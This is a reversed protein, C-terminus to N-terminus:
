KPEIPIASIKLIGNVTKGTDNDTGLSSNAISFTDDALKGGKKKYADNVGTFVFSEGAAGSYMKKQGCQGGNWGAGGGGAGNNNTGYNDGNLYNNKNTAGAAKAYTAGHENDYAGNSKNVLTGAQGGNANGTKNSSGGGGAAILIRKTYDYTSGAVLETAGGGGYGANNSNTSYSGKGGGNAGGCEKKNYCSAGMGGIAYYVTQPEKLILQGKIIAPMGGHPLSLNANVGGGKGGRAQIDFNGKPLKITGTAGATTLNVNCFATYPVAVSKTINTTYAGVNAAVAAKITVADYYAKKPPTNGNARTKVTFKQATNYNSKTFTFSTASLTLGDTNDLTLNVKVDGTPQAALKISGTSNTGCKLAGTSSLIIGPTENDAVTIKPKAPKNNFNADNSTANFQLYATQMGDAQSDDVATYYFTIFSDDVTKWNAAKITVKGDSFKGSILNDASAKLSTLKLETTDTSKFTITVDKTPKANLRVKCNYKTTVDSESLAYNSCTATITASNIDTIEITKQATKGTFNSDNSSALLKLAPKKSGDILQDKVGNLTITQNKNWTGETFTLTGPSVTMEKTNNSSVAVLVTAAPMASLRAQCKGNGGEKISAPCNELIISAKDIEKVLTTVKASMDKYEPATDDTKITIESIKDGAIKKDHVGTITFNQQKNYNDATFTLTAPSVTAADTKSSVASVTVTKSPKTNLNVKIVSTAGENLTVSTASVALGAQDNDANILDVPAVELDNFHADESTVKFTIQYAVNGDQMADDMGTVVLEQPQDWNAADFRLEGKSVTGEATNTSMVIISVDNDPQVSLSVGITVKGGAETTMLSDPLALVVAAKDDDRNTLGVEYSLGNFDVDESESSLQVKYPQDGDLMSDKLGVITFYKPTEYDESTFTLSEAGSVEAESVDDIIATVIVDNIPKTDLFVALRVTESGDESTLDGTANIVKIKPETGLRCAGEKCTRDAPCEIGICAADVCNGGSCTLSENECTVGVCAPEICNGNSCVLGEECTKGVCETDVCVDYECTKGEECKTGAGKCLCEGAVCTEGDTCEIGECPDGEICKGEANCYEGEQCTVGGCDCAGTKENCTENKTECIVSECKSETSECVQEESCAEGEDCKTDGCLCEGANCTENEGCTVGACGLPVCKNIETDCEEEGTCAADGCKAVCTEDQCAEDDNCVVTGCLARCESEVCKEGDLCTDSGCLERCVQDVCKQTDTCKTGGCLDPDDIEKDVCKEDVCTQTESCVEGGCKQEPDPEDGIDVCKNDECKQKDTCIEDGCKEITDNDVCQKDVCTQDATCKSCPDKSESKDDDDCAYVGILSAMLVCLGIRKKLTSQNM